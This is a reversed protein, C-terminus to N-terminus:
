ESNGGVIEVKDGDSLFQEGRVVLQEGEELGSTVEVADETKLGLELARKRAVGDEVVFAFFEDEEEVLVRRPIVVADRAEQVVVLLRAHQGMRVEEVAEDFYAKLSYSRTGERPALDIEEITGPFDRDLTPVQIRVSMGERVMELQRETINAEAYLSGYDVLRLLPTGPSAEDGLRATISSVTGSIPAKIRSKEYATQASELGLRADRLQAELMELDSQQGSRELELQRRASAYRDEAQRSQSELVRVESELSEEELELQRQASEFRSQATEYEARVQDYESRSVIDQEYLNKLRQYNNEVERYYIEAERLQTGLQEELKERGLERTNSLQMEAQQLSESAQELQSELEAIQRPFNVDRASELQLRAQEVSSEAQQVQNALDEDELEVLVQDKVVTEGVEADISRITGGVQPVVAVNGDSNLDASLELYEELDSKSVTEVEVPVLDNEGEDIADDTDCGTVNMLLLAILLGHLLLWKIRM